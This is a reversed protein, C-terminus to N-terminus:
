NKAAVFTAGLPQNATLDGVVRGLVVAASVLHSTSYMAFIASRTTISVWARAGITVTERSM